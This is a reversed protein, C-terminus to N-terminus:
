RALANELAVEEAHEGAKMLLALVCANLFYERLIERQKASIRNPPKPPTDAFGHPRIERNSNM